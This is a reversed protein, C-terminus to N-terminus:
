YAEKKFLNCYVTEIKVSKQNLHNFSMFFCNDHIIKVEFYYLLLKEEVKITNKKKFFEFLSENSISDLKHSFVTSILSYELM